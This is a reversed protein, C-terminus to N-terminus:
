WPGEVKKDLNRGICSGLAVFAEKGVHIVLLTVLRCIDQYLQQLPEGPTRRACLEAKFCDAQLQTGSRTQFLHVHQSNNCLPRHGLPSTGCSEQSQRVSPSVHGWWGVLFTELSGIGDYQQQNILSSMAKPGVPNVTMNLIVKLLLVAYNLWPEAVSVVSAWGEISWLPMPHHDCNDDTPSLGGRQRVVGAHCVSQIQPWVCLHCFVQPSDLCSTSDSILQICWRPYTPIRNPDLLPTCM